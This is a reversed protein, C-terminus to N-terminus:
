KDKALMILMDASRADSRPSVAGTNQGESEKTQIEAAASSLGAMVWFVFFITNNYWVFDFFGAVILSLMGAGGAAALVPLRKGGNGCTRVGMAKQLVFFIALLLFVIGIVGLETITQLWLSHAHSANWVEPDAVRLYMQSFLEDGIGIGGSWYRGIIKSAANWVKVRYYNASDGLSTISGVRAGFTHPFCVGLLSIVAVSAPIAAVARSTVSLLFIISAVALGVWAGRSWTFVTCVLISAASFGYLFRERKNKALLIGALAFPFVPIIFYALTNPNSFVSTSRGSIASFSESDLWDFVARGCIYEAIGMFSVITASIVSILVSSRLKRRYSVTNVILFYVCMLAARILAHRVDGGGSTFLGGCLTLLMFGGVAAEAPGFIATRKGRMYKIAFGTAALLTVSALILSPHEFFSLFPATFVTFSVGAEPFSLLVAVAIVSLLVVIFTLPSIWYTLMGAAIGLIVAWSQGATDNKPRISLKDPTVGCADSLLDHLLMSNGLASALSKKSFLLPFSLFIIVLACLMDGGAIADSLLAYKKVLYILESYIGFTIFFAGYTKMYCRMAINKLRALLNIVLSEEFTRAIRKKIRRILGGGSGSRRWTGVIASGNLARSENAYSHMIRGVIGSNLREDLADCFTAFCSKATDKDSIQEVDAEDFHYEEDSIHSNNNNDYGDSM